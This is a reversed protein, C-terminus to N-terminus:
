GAAARRGCPKTREGSPDRDLQELPRPARTARATPEIGLVPSHHARTLSEQPAKPEVATVRSATAAGRSIMRDLLAPELRSGLFGDPDAFYGSYGGWFTDAAPKVIRAGARQATALVADVEERTRVNHALSFCRFGEGAASVKADEALGRAPLTRALHRADRLVRRRRHRAADAPRPRRPLLPDLSRPGRCRTHRHQHPSWSRRMRHRASSRSAFCRASCDTARASGM